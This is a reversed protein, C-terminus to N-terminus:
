PQFMTGQFGKTIVKFGRAIMNLNKVMFLLVKLVLNRATHKYLSSIHTYVVTDVYMNIVM